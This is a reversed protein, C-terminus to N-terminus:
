DQKFHYVVVLLSSLDIQPSILGIEANSNNGGAYGSM